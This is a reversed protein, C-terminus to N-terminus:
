LQTKFNENEKYLKDLEKLKSAMGDEQRKYDREIYNLNMKTEGLEEELKYIQNLKEQIDLAKAQQDVKLLKIEREKEIAQTKLDFITTDKDSILDQVKQREREEISKQNEIHAQLKTSIEENRLRLEKVEATKAKNDEKTKSSELSLAEITKGKAEVDKRLARLVDDHRAADNTLTNLRERAEELEQKKDNLEFELDSRAQDM